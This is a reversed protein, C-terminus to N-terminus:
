RRELNALGYGKSLVLRGAQVVVVAAGPIHEAAMTSDMVADVLTALQPNPTPTPAIPTPTASCAIALFVAVVGLLTRMAPDDSSTSRKGAKSAVSKFSTPHKM